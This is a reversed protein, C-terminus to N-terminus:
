RCDFTNKFGKYLYAAILGILFGDAFGWGFWGVIGPYSKPFYLYSQRLLIGLDGPNVLRETIMFIISLPRYNYGYTTPGYDYLYTVLALLFSSLGFVIGTAISFNLVNFGVISKRPNQLLNYIWGILVGDAFGDVFGLSFSLLINQLTFPFGQEAVNILSSFHTQLDLLRAVSLFLTSLLRFDLEVLAMKMHSLQATAVLAISLLAWTVGMLLGLKLASIKNMEDCRSSLNYVILM